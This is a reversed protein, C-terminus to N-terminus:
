TTLLAWINQFLKLFSFNDPNNISVWIFAALGFVIVGFNILTALTIFNSYHKTLKLKFWLSIFKDIIPSIFLIAAVSFIVIGKGTNLGGSRASWVFLGYFVTFILFHILIVELIQRLKITYRYRESM